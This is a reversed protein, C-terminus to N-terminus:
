VNYMDTHHTVTSSLHENVDKRDSKTATLVDIVSTVRSEPGVVVSARCRIVTTASRGTCTVAARQLWVLGCVSLRAPAFYECVLLCVQAPIEELMTLEVARQYWQIAM